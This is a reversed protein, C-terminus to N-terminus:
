KESNKNYHLILSSLTARSAATTIAKLKFHTHVSSYPITGGEMTSFSGLFVNQWVTSPQRYSSAAQILWEGTLIADIGTMTKKTAPKSDDIWPLEVTMQCNDYEDTGFPSYTASVSGLSFLYDDGGVTGRIFVKNKYVVMQTPVFTTQVGNVAHTMKYTSWASIKLAPFYSYVYLTDKIFLWYRSSLPEAVAIAAAIDATTCESLKDQVILDIPSGLDSIFANLTDNRVRLSRIGAPGLFLVDLEGIGVTAFPSITPVNELLQVLAYDLVLDFGTQWIQISREGFVALRDQYQAMSIYNEAFSTNQSLDIYGAGLPGDSDAAESNFTPLGAETLRIGCFWLKSGELVYIKQNHTICFTGATIPENTLLTGGYFMYNNGDSFEAIVFIENLFICSSVYRVFNLTSVALKQYFLSISENITFDLTWTVTGTDTTFTSEAITFEVYGEEAIDTVTWTGNLKPEEACDSVTISMGVALYDPATMWAQVTLGSPIFSVTGVESTPMDGFYYLGDAGAALGYGPLPSASFDTEGIFHSLLSFKKRKEIEGGQNVHGNELTTLTGPQNSLADRRSDLGYKFNQISIYSM